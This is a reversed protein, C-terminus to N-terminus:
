GFCIEKCLFVLKLNRVKLYEPTLHEGKQLDVHKREVPIDLAAITLYVARVVPSGDACYLINPM